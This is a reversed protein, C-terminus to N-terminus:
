WTMLHWEPWREPQVSIPVPTAPEDASLDGAFVLDAAHELAEFAPTM